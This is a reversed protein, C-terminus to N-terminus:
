MNIKMKVSDDRENEYMSESYRGNSMRLKRVHGKNQKEIAKVLNVDDKDSDNIEKGSDIHPEGQANHHIEIDDFDDDRTQKKKRQNQIVLTVKM